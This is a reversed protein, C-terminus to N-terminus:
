PIEPLTPRHTTFNNHKQKDSSIKIEDEGRFSLKAPYLIRSQHVKWYKFSIAGSDEQKIIEMLFRSDSKDKTRQMDKKKVDKLIKRKIMAKKLKISTGQLKRWIEQVQLIHTKLRHM